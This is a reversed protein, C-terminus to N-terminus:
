RNGADDEKVFGYVSVDKLPIKNGPNNIDAEVEICVPFLGEAAKQGPMIPKKGNCLEVQKYSKIQMELSQPGFANVPLALSTTLLGVSLCTMGQSIVKKPFHRQMWRQICIVSCDKDFSLLARGQAILLTFGILLWAQMKM